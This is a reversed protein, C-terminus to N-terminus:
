LSEGKLLMDWLSIKQVSITVPEYDGALEYLLIEKENIILTSKVNESVILQLSPFSRNIELEVYGDVLAVQKSDEPTSPVGAGFTKFKTKTLLLTDEKREYFEVWEEKEVSHIWQIAFQQNTTWFLQDRIEFTLLPFTLRHSFFLLVLIGTGGMLLTKSAKNMM